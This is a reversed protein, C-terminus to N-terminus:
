CYKSFVQGPCFLARSASSLSLSWLPERLRYQCLVLGYLHMDDGEAVCLVVCAAQSSALLGHLERLWERGLPVAIAGGLQSAVPNPGSGWAAPASLAGTRSTSGAEAQSSHSPNFHYFDLLRASPTKIGETIYNTSVFLWSLRHSQRKKRGVCQCNQLILNCFSYRAWSSPMHRGAMTRGAHRGSKM